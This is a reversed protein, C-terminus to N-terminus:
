IKKQGLGINGITLILGYTLKGFMLGIFGYEDILSVASLISVIGGFMNLLSIFKANGSVLNLFHPVVNISLLLYSGALMMLLIKNENSFNNGMWLELILDSFLIIPIALSLSVVVGYLIIKLNSRSNSKRRSFIPLIVSFLAAPLAHIQQAIQLCVSYVALSNAGMVAGILFRDFQSFFVSSLIQMWNWGAFSRIETTMTKSVMPLWIGRGLLESLTLGYILCNIVSFILMASLIGSLGMGLYAVLIFTLVLASKSVLELRAVLGFLEFGKIAAKYTFEVQALLLLMSAVVLAYKVSDQSGMNKLWNNALWDSGLALAGGALGGGLLAWALGAQVVSKAQSLEVEDRYVAVFRTITPAVGLNVM